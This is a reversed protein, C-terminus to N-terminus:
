KEDEVLKLTINCLLKACLLRSEDDLIFKKNVEPNWLKLKEYIYDTLKQKDYYINSVQSQDIASQLYSFFSVAFPLLHKYKLRM